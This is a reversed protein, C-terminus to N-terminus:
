LRLSLAVGVGGPRVAVSPTARFPVDAWREGSMRWGLLAGIATGSLGIAGAGIAAMKGRSVVDLGEGRESEYSAVGLLAGTSAGVAAGVLAHRAITPGTRRVGVSVQVAGVEGRHLSFPERTDARLLTLSDPGSALVTGVIWRASTAGPAPTPAVRVRTGEELARVQSAAPRAALLALVALCCAVYRM